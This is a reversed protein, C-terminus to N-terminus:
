SDVIGALLSQFPVLCQEELSEKVQGHCGNENLFSGWAQASGHLRALTFFYLHTTGFRTAGYIDIPYRNRNSVVTTNPCCDKPVCAVSHRVLGFSRGLVIVCIHVHLAASPEV